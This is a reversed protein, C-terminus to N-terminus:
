WPRGARRALAYGALCFVSVGWGVYAWLVFRRGIGRQGLMLGSVIAGVGSAGLIVGLVDADGGLENRVIYPRAGRVPGPLAAAHARGLAADGVAVAALPRVEGGRPRGRAGLRRLGRPGRCAAGDDGRVGDLGPVHAADVAFAAGSGLAAVLLGGIAPGPSAFPSRSPSSSCRTRRSWCGSPSSTPFSRRSTPRSSRRAPATSRRRVRDPALARDVGSLALVAIAGIAVARIADGAIMLRRRDFRDGLVGGVLLFIVMPLTWAVGVVSLATPVNSLDYVQWALAVVYIGDGFLSVTTGGFLLAFDRIRLPRLIRVGTASRPRPPPSSPTPGPGDGSPPLPARLSAAARM